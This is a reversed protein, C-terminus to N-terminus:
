KCFIILARGAGLLLETPWVNVKFRNLVYELSANIVIYIVFFAMMGFHGNLWVASFTPFMGIAFSTIIGYLPRIINGTRDETMKALWSPKDDNVPDYAGYGMRITNTAGCTLLGIWLNATFIFFIGYLIPILVDRYGSWRAKNWGGFRWLAASVLIILFEMDVERHVTLRRDNFNSGFGAM